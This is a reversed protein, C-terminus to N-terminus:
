HIIEATISADEQGKKGLMVSDTLQEILDISEKARADIRSYEAAAVPM